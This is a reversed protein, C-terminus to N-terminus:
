RVRARRADRLQLRNIKKTLGRRSLGLSQATRSVNGGFEALRELILNAELANLREKLADARPPPPAPVHLAPGPAEPAGAVQRRIRDSLHGVDITTEDPDTMALAREIENKLERVNGPFGYALLVDLARPTVGDFHKHAFFSRHEIFHRVLLPVDEKRERLPPVRLTFIYLRYFLDERLKAQRVLDELSVNTASVVRVDVRRRRVSGVPAFEGEQLVRLLKNQLLLSASSVEDIFVTGGDAIEFLGKKETRADTFAGRVHGFLESEILADPVATCDLVVFPAAARPSCYHLARAILEKGSGTEGEICVPLDGDVARLVQEKLRRIGPSTGVIQDLHETGPVAEDDGVPLLAPASSALSYANM